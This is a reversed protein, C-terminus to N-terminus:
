EHLYAIFMRTELGRAERLQRVANQRRVANANTMGRRRLNSQCHSLSRKHLPASEIYAAREAAEARVDHGPHAAVISALGALSAAIISLRM